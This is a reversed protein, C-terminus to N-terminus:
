SLVEYCRGFRGFSRNFAQVRRADVRAALPSKTSATRKWRPLLLLSSAFDAAGTDEGALRFHLRDRFHCIAIANEALVNWWQTSSDHKVLALVEVGRQTHENVALRCFPLPDSYPPQLWLFGLPPVHDSWRKSLSDDRKDHKVLAPVLSWPNSCPDYHVVGAFTLVSGIVDPPTCRDDNTAVDGRSLPPALLLSPQYARSTASDIPKGVLADAVAEDDYLQERCRKCTVDDERTTSSVDRRRTPRAGCLAGSTHLYHVSM